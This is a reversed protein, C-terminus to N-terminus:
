SGGAAPPPKQRLIVLALLEAGFASGLLVSGLIEGRLELAIGLLGFGLIVVIRSLSGIGVSGTRASRTLTGQNYAIFGAILPQVSLFVLPLRAREALDPSLGIVKELIVTMVPTLTLVFVGVCIGGVFWILFGKLQRLNDRTTGLAITVASYRLTPSALFWVLSAVVAYIALATEPEPTRSIFANIVPNTLTGLAMTGALPLLFLVRGSLSRGVKQAPSPGHTREPTRTAAFAVYFLEIFVAAALAAMAAAPAEMPLRPCVFMVLGALLLLRLFTGWAIPASNRRSILIGQYALRTAVLVPFVVSVQLAHVSLDILGEPVGMLTRFLFPAAPTFAVVAEFVMMLVGVWFAFSVYSRIPGSGGYWAVIAQQLAFVPSELFISLSFALGFAALNTEPLPLRALGANIVPVSVSMMTSTLALPLFLVGIERYSLRKEPLAAARPVGTAESM